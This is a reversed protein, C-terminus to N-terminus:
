SSILLFGSWYSSTSAEDINVTNGNAWARCYLEVYDDSGNMEVFANVTLGAGYCDQNNYDITTRNYQAANLYIALQQWRFTYNSNYTVVAGSIFYNGATQPTLRYNSSNDYAGASDETETNMQIKTWAGGTGLNQSTGTQYARFYPTNAGGGSAAKVLGSARGLNDSIIGAM